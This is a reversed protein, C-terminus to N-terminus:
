GRLCGIETGIETLTAARCAFAGRASPSSSVPRDLHDSHEHTALAPRGRSVGAADAPPVGRDARPFPDVFVTMVAPDATSVSQGLWWLEVGGQRLRGARARRPHREIHTAQARGRDCATRPAARPATSLNGRRDLAADDLTDLLELMATHSADLRQRMDAPTVDTNRRLQGANWRNPDFDSPVGGEGAAMRRVTGVFGQEATSVHTLLDRITWGENPSVRAWDDDGVLRDLLASLDQQTGVLDQRIAAKRDDM